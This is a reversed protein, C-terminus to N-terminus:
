DFDKEFRKVEGSQADIEYSYEYGNADFDVEWYVGGYERDLEAELDYVDNANLKAHALAKDIAEQRGIKEANQVVSDDQSAVSGQVANQLGSKEAGKKACASLSLVLALVFILALFKKM